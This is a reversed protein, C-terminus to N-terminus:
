KGTTTRVKQRSFFSSFRRADVSLPLRKQQKKTGIAIVELRPPFASNGHKVHRTTYWAMKAIRRHIMVLGQDTVGDICYCPRFFRYMVFVNISFSM